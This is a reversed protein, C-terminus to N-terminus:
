RRGEKTFTRIGVLSFVILGLITSPEPIGLALLAQNAILRHGQRSPHQEDWFFFDNPNACVTNTAINLCQETANTLGYEPPNTIINEFLTNVDLPIITAGPPPTLNSLGLNHSQTLNNLCDPDFQTNAPCINDPPGYEPTNNTRPTLGLDPLNVLLINKPQVAALTTLYTQINSLTINPNSYPTFGKSNTPLYDNAGIWIVYLADPDPTPSSSLFLGIQQQLGILPLGPLTTDLTNNAGSTAGGFAANILPINLTTSLDDLWNPGNSFRGQYYGLSTPPFTLQNNTAIQVLDNVNHTDSLSDGFAIIKSFSAADVVSPCLLPLGLCVLSLLSKKMIKALFFKSRYIDDNYLLGM